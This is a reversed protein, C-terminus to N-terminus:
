ADLPESLGLPSVGKLWPHVMAARATIRADPDPALAQELLQFAEAPITDFETPNLTYVLDRWRVGGKTVSPLKSLFVRDAIGSERTLVVM